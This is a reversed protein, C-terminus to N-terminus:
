VTGAPNVRAGAAEDPDSIVVVVKGTARGEDVVAIAEVIDDLSFRQLVHPRVAGAAYLQKLREVDPRHFPKWAVLLGMRRGRARGVPLGLLATQLMWAASGGMATYVGGPKLASRWRLLSHHADVDVIWDFRRPLRTYDTTRYDVVDDAGLSRVFDLKPGSAVGTVRAGMAKAVQVAFPGVNGSAGVVLVEDGPKPTRHGGRGDGTRLGQLALVASHPLTSADEFPMGDPIAEFAEQSACVYEAFTGAGHSFLDAFVRDGPKFRTSEPGVAEVVGAVDIGLRPNRPARLGFFLRVFAWRPRIGDIDGRNVSAAVVRVLVQDGSPVPKSVERVRVVERPPGYRDQVAQRMGADEVV